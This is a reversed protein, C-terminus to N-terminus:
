ATGAVPKVDCSGHCERCFYMQTEGDLDVPADHCISRIRYRTEPGADNWPITGDREAKEYEHQLWEDLLSDLKEPDRM